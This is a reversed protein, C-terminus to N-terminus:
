YNGLCFLNYICDCRPHLEQRHRPINCCTTLWLPVSNWKPFFWIYKWKQFSLHCLSYCNNTPSSLVGHIRFIWWSHQQCKPVSSDPYPQPSDDYKREFVHRMRTQSIGVLCTRYTRNVAIPWNVNKRLQQSLLSYNEARRSIRSIKAWTCMNQISAMRVWWTQVYGYGHLFIQVHCIYIYIYIYSVFLCIGEWLWVAHNSNILDIFDDNYESFWKPTLPTGCGVRIRESASCQTVNNLCNDESENHLCMSNLWMKLKKKVRIDHLYYYEKTSFVSGKIKRPCYASARVVCPNLAGVAMINVKNDLFVGAEAGSAILQIAPPAM